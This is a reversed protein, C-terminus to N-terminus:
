RPINWLVSLVGVVAITRRVKDLKHLQPARYPWCVAMYRNFAIVVTLWITAMQSMYLVPFTYFRVLQITTTTSSSPRVGNLDLMYRVTYHVFWLLLFTNDAVALATLQFSAIPTKTDTALVYISVSNGVLGVVFVTSAVLGFWVVQFYVDNCKDYKLSTENISDVSSDNFEPSMQYETPAATQYRLPSVSASAQTSTTLSLTHMAALIHFNVLATTM